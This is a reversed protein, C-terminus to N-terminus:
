KQMFKRGNRIYVGPSLAGTSQRGWLDYTKGDATETQRRVSGVATTQGDVTVTGDAAKTLTVYQPGGYTLFPTVQKEGRAQSGVTFQYTGVPLARLSITDTIFEEGEGAFYGYGPPVVDKELNMLGIKVTNNGVTSRFSYWLNGQFYLVHYNFFHPIAFLLRGDDLCELRYPEEFVWQSSYEDQSDPKLQPRFGFVMEHGSDFHYTKAMVLDSIEFFGNYSEDATGQGWGWNVWVKGDEDNGTLLFAHGIKNQSDVGGYLIPRKQALQDYIAASWDEDSYFDRLMYRIALSDYSFNRFMATAADRTFAGSGDAAYNMGVACGADYMLQQVAKKQNTGVSGGSNYTLRMNSWDYTSNVLTSYERRKSGITYSGSGRGAAPYEYYKMVQAMATAVCGTPCRTVGDKPCLGNFPDGQAWQTKVFNEVATMSRMRIPVGTQLRRTMEGLWWRFAEPAETQSFAARSVALVPQQAEDRSVVAFGATTDGIVALVGNEYIKKLQLGSGGRTAVGELQRAAIAKLQRESRNGALVGLAAVAALIM